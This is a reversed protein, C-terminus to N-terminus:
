NAVFQRFNTTHHGKVLYASLIEIMTSFMVKYMLSDSSFPINRRWNGNQDCIRATQIIVSIRMWDETIALSAVPRVSRTVIIFVFFSWYANFKMWIDIKLECIPVLNITRMPKRTCKGGPHFSQLQESKKLEKTCEAYKNKVTYSGVAKAKRQYRWSSCTFTSTFFAATM